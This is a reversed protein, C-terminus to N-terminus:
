WWGVARFVLVLWGPSCGADLHMAIRLAHMRGSKDYGVDYTTITDHRGGTMEMDQARTIELVVPRNCAQAALAAACAAPTNRTVKAGFAGGLRRCKITVRSRDNGPGYLVNAVATQVLDHWQNASWM